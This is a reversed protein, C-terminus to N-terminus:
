QAGGFGQELPLFSSTVTDNLIHTPPPSVSFKPTTPDGTHSPLDPGGHCWLFWLWPSGRSDALLEQCSTTFDWLSLPQLLRDWLTPYGGAPCAGGQQWGQELEGTWEGRDREPSGQLGPGPCPHGAHPRHLLGSDQSVFVVSDGRHLLLGAQLMQGWGAQRARDLAGIM